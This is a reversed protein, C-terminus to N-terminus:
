NKKENTHLNRLNYEKMHQPENSKKKLCYSDYITMGLAYQDTRHSLRTGDFFTAASMPYPKSIWLYPNLYMSNTYVHCVGNCVRPWDKNFDVCNLGNFTAWGFDGLRFEIETGDNIYFIQPNWIDYHTIYLRQLAKGVKKIFEMLRIKYKETSEETENSNQPQFFDV